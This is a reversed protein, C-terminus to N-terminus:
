YTWKLGGLSYLKVGTKSNQYILNWQKFRDPLAGNQVAIYNFRDGKKIWSSDIFPFNVYYLNHFGYLLVTDKSSINKNFYNDADYFDGFNFNLNKILFQDKSERGIIFPLYKANAVARYFVSVFSIIIILSMTIKKLANNKLAQLMVAVIISFAPLYPAIFRGGGTRPIIYWLIIALAVYLVIFKISLLLKKINLVVLPLFIIYIPSIPDALNTFLQWIDNIFHVPWFLSFDFSVKYTDTFFPYVPNGTHIYSFIFWPLPILLSIISYTIIKLFIEKIKEKKIIENIILLSLIILLSGFALLKVSIAFGIMIASKILWGNKNEKVYNIFGWLAMVEFFTRALDVYATISEWAVVLNSYFVVPVIMAYKFPLFNRALKFIAIASLIGFSFHIIKAFVENNLSLAATYIMETFKPMDSYYLLSGPIHIIEHSLLYIKPLTLHYWLADFALEPGLAGILNVLTQLIFVLILFYELKYKTVLKLKPFKIKLNKKYILSLFLFFIFIIYISSFLLIINGYLLKLLGLMLIIYAYIGVFVAIAFM